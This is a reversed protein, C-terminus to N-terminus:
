EHSRRAGPRSTSAPSEQALSDSEIELRIQKIARRVLERDKAPVAFLSVGFAKAVRMVTDIGVAGKATELNSLTQKAIGLQMAAEAISMKTACRAARIAKGLEAPTAILPDAPLSAASVSRM